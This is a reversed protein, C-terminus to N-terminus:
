RHPSLLTNLLIVLESQRRCGTKAFISKLHNRGTEKSIKFQTCIGELGAGAGLHSAVRAEAETLGFLSRLIGTSPHRRGEPDVLVVLAQCRMPSTAMAPLRGPYAMLPLRGQRPLQVPEELGNREGNVILQYLKRDLLATASSHEATIKRGRIRVDGTLLRTASANQRLVCGRHDILVAATQSLDFAELVANCLLEQWEQTMALDALEQQESSAALYRGRSAFWPRFAARQLLM